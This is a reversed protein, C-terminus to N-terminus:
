AAKPKKFFSAVLPLVIGGLLSSIISGMMANGGLMNTVQTGIAQTSGWGGAAGLVTNLLPGLSRTKNLMGALNGGAGGAILQVLLSAYDM